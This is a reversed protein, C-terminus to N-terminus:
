ATPLEEKPAFFLNMLKSNGIRWYEKIAGGVGDEKKDNKKNDWREEHKVIQGNEINLYVVSNITTSKSSFVKYFYKTSM